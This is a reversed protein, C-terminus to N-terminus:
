QKGSNHKLPTTTSRVFGYLGIKYLEGLAASTTQAHRPLISKKNDKEIRRLTEYHIAGILIGINDVVPLAHYQQWAPHNLIAQFDLDASLRDVSTSMVTPLPDGPRALMLERLTIVGTLEQNRSVIYLYYIANEPREQVRQLAEKITLDDPLTLVKPDALAGARDQPYHLMRSLPISVEEAVLRLIAERVEKNVQRLFISGIQLPLREVIAAARTPDIIQLCRVATYRELHSFTDVALSVHIEQLLVAIEESKQRELIRAADAPHHRIFSEVIIRDSNM